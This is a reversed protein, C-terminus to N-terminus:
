RSFRTKGRNTKLLMIASAKMNEGRSKKAWGWSFEKLMNIKLHNYIEPSDACFGYATKNDYVYHSLARKRATM